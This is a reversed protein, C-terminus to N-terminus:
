CKKKYTVSIDGTDAWINNQGLLSEIATMSLTYSVPTALEYVAKVGSMATKFTDKNTYRTDRICFGADVNWSRATIKNNPELSQYITNYSATAYQSCKISAVQDNNTTKKANNVSAVFLLTTSNYSWTPDGLDIIGHTVMLTGTGDGNDTIEAGYVTGATDQWSITRTLGFAEYTTATEGTEIQVDNLEGAVKKYM